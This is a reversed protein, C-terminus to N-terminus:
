AQRLDEKVMRTVLAAVEGRTITNWPKFYFEGNDEIGNIVGARQLLAVDGGYVIDSADAFSVSSTIAPLAKEPLAAAMIHVFEERTAPRTYAYNETIIGNDRAYNVYPDYWNGGDYRPFDEEGTYYIAHIRAALTIAEAITMNNSPSFSGSGTGNMLGLKYATAIHQQAWHSSPVDAFLDEFYANRDTFNGLGDTQPATPVAVYVYTIVTSGDERITASKRAPTDFGEYERPMPSVTEGVPGTYTEREVTSTLDAYEFRCVVTYEAEQAEKMETYDDGCNACIYRTYADTVDAIQYDHELPDIWEQNIEGCVECTRERQGEEECTAEETVVWRGWTHGDSCDPQPIEDCTARLVVDEDPMTFSYEQEMSGPVQDASSEWQRWTYGEAVQASVTVTEGCRYTGNGWTDDIGDDSKIRVTHTIAEYVYEIVTSGDAAVQAFQSVPTEYGPYERPNPFVPEGTTGTFTDTDELRPGNGDDLYHRVTYPVGSAPAWVAYLSLDRNASYTCGPTYNPTSASSSAAWGNFRYGSRVPERSSLTLSKNYEKTQRSPAGSGGNADYTITYTPATATVNVTATALVSNSRSMFKVTITGTGVSDAYVNMQATNNRMADSIWAAKAIGSHDVNIYGDEPFTGGLNVTVTQSSNGALNLNVRSPSASLRVNYSDAVTFNEGRWVKEAGSIDRAILKLYYTGSPLTNFTLENDIPSNYLSFSTNNPNYSKRLHTSGATDIVSGQVFNITYNSTVTGGLSFYSGKTLSGTPYKSMSVSLSSSASSATGGFHVVVMHSYPRGCEYCTGVWAPQDNVAGNHQYVNVYTGSVNSVLATHQYPGGVSDTPCGSCLWFLADGASVKGKNDSTRINNGYTKLYQISAIKSGNVVENYLENYLNTCERDWSSLGGTQLCNSVFEACLGKGDNWHSRAYSLARTPDYSSSAMATGPLLAACLALILLLSLFRKM